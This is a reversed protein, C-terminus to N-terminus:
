KGTTRHMTGRAHGSSERGASAGGRTSGRSPSPTRRMLARLARDAPGDEARETLTQPHVTRFMPGRKPDVVAVVVKARSPIDFVIGDVAPGGDAVKVLGDISAEEM